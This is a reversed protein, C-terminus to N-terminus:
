CHTSRVQYPLHTTQPAWMAHYGEKEPFVGAREGCNPGRVLCHEQSSVKRRTVKPSALLM